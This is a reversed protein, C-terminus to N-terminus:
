YIQVSFYSSPDIDLKNKELLEVVYVCITNIYSKNSILISCNYVNFFLINTMMLICRIPVFMKMKNWAHIIVLITSYLIRKLVVSNVSMSELIICRFCLTVKNQVQYVIELCILLPIHCARRNTFGPSFRLDSQKISLVFM